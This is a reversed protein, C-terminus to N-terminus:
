EAHLAAMPNIRAARRAPLWCALFAASLLLLTVGALTVPDNAAVGYLYSKVFRTLFYGGVLGVCIGAATLKLGGKIVLGFLDQRTAGLASRIGLELTRREVSFAIIGYLGLAALGLAVTAFLSLLGLMLRRTFAIQVLVDEYSRVNSVPQDPAEALVAAQVTKALSLPAQKTRVVLSSNFGRFPFRTSQAEPLYALPVAGQEVGWALVDGTVGIVEYSQNLLRVQQGLPNQDAFLRKALHANIVMMPSAGSRNDNETFLRGQLLPIHMAETYRGSIFNVITTPAASNDASVSETYSGQLPLHCAIGVCDVGPLAEVRRAIRELYAARTEAKGFASPALSLDAILVGSPDFGLSVSQMHQLSRLLLGAGILLILSLAIQGVILIGKTNAHAGTESVHNGSKLLDFRARAFRLVPALGSFLGAAMSVIVAFVLAHNDIEVALGSALDDPRWLEFTAVGWHAFLVGLLGGCLSLLLSEQLLLRAVSWRSAGLTLRLSIEKQRSIGKTLLLGAVNACAILLVCVTAGLLLMLQPRVAGTVEDHLPVLLVGWKKKWAPYNTRRQQETIAAMEQKAQELTVGQKIRGIASLKHGSFSRSWDTSGCAFPILFDARKTLRADPSLVGIITRSLGGMQVTRGIATHSGAFYRQWAGHSLIVVDDQGAQGEDPLFDRGQVPQLRLLHLYNSSVQLGDLRVPRETGTLNYSTGFIGAVGELSRCQDQWVKLVGGAIANHGSGDGESDEWLQILQAPEAYPLPRLVVGNVISFMATCAGIGLALTLIAIATFGPAKRLQRLAFRLDSLM